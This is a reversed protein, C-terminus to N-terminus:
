VTSLAEAQKPRPHCGHGRDTLWGRRCGETPASVLRGSEGRGPEVKTKQQSVNGATLASTEPKGKQPSIVRLNGRGMMMWFAFIVLNGAQVSTNEM